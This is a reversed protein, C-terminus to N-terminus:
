GNWSMASTWRVKAMVIDFEDQYATAAKMFRSYAGEDPAPEFGCIALLRPNADLETLFRNSYRINLVSQLFVACLNVMAGYGPRGGKGSEVTRSM